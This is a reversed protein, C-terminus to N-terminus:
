PSLHVVLVREKKKRIRPIIARHVVTYRGFDRMTWGSKHEEHKNAGIALQPKFGYPTTVFVHRTHKFVERLLQHGEDKPFHEIIDGLVAGDFRGLCPLIKFVDGFHISSYLSRQLTGIYPPFIEIGTVDIKWDRRHFRGHEKAEYYERILFGVKGFGVGIDLIRRPRPLAERLFEVLYPVAEVASTPM